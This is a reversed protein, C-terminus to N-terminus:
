RVRTNLFRLPFMKRIVWCPKQTNLDLKCVVLSEHSGSYGIIVQVLCVTGSLAYTKGYFQSTQCKLVIVQQEGARSNVATIPAVSLVPLLQM